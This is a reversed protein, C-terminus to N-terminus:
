FIRFNAKNDQSLSKNEGGIGLKGDEGAAMILVRRNNITKGKDAINEIAEDYDVDIRILYYHYKDGDDTKGFLPAMITANTRFTLHETDKEVEDLWSLPYDGYEDFYDNIAAQLSQIQTTSSLNRQSKGVQGAVAPILFTMLVSIILVVVLIEILSFGKNFRTSRISFVKMLQNKNM